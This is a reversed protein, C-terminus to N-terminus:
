AALCSTNGLVSIESVDEPIEDYNMQKIDAPVADKVAIWERKEPNGVGGHTLDLAACPTSSDSTASLRRLGYSIRGFFTNSNNYVVYITLSM